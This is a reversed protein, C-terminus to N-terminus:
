PPSGATTGLALRLPARLRRPLLTALLEVDAPDFFGTARLLLAFLVGGAAARLLPPVAPPLAASIGIAGACLGFGLLMRGFPLHLPHIRRVLVLMVLNKLVVSLATAVAMGLAGYAGALPIGAALNALVSIKSYILIEPRELAKVVLGLPLQQLPLLSLFVLAPLYAGAYEERFVLALLERGAPAFSALLLLAVATNAHTILAFMRDLDRPDRREEYRSFFSATVLPLFLQRPMLAQLRTAITAAVAYIAVEVPAALAALLYRDVGTGLLTTGFDNIWSALRYRRRTRDEPPPAVVTGPKPPGFAAVSAALAQILAAGSAASFLVVFYALPEGRAIGLATGGLFLGQYVLAHALTARQRFAANLAALLHASVVQAVLGPQALLFATRHGALGLRPALLDFGAVLLASALAALAFRRMVVPWVLRGAGGEREFTPVYRLLAHRHGLSVVLQLPAALGTLLVWAAYREPDLYRVLLLMSALAIAIQLAGSAAAYPFARRTREATSAAARSAGADGSM